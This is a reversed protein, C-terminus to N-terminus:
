PTATSDGHLRRRGAVSGGSMPGTVCQQPPGVQCTPPGRPRSGSRPHWHGRLSYRWRRRARGDRIGPYGISHVLVM